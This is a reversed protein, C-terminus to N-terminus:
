RNGSAKGGDATLCTCGKFTGVLCVCGVGKSKSKEQREQKEQMEEEEEKKGTRDRQRDAQRSAERMDWESLAKHEKTRGRWARGIFRKSNYMTDKAPGSLLGSQRGKRGM